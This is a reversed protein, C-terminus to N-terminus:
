CNFKHRRFFFNRKFQIFDFKYLLRISDFPKFIYSVCSVWGVEALNLPLRFDSFIQLM